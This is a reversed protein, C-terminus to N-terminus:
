MDFKYPAFVVGQQIEKSRLAVPDNACIVVHSPLSTPQPQLRYRSLWQQWDRQEGASNPLTLPHGHAHHEGRLPRKYVADTKCCGHRCKQKNKCTHKCGPAKSVPTDPASMKRGPSFIPELKAKQPILCTTKSSVGSGPAIVKSQHRGEDDKSM